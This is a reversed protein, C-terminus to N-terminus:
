KTIADSLESNVPSDNGNGMIGLVAVIYNALLKNGDIKLVQYERCNAQRLM